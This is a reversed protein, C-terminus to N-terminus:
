ADDDDDDNDNAVDPLHTHILEALLKAAAAVNARPGSVTVLRESPMHNTSTNTAASRPASTTTANNTANIYGAGAGAGAGTGAGDIM